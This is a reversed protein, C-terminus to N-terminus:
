SWFSASSFFECGVVDDIMAASMIITGARTHGLNGENEGGNVGSLISFTTGLSTASLAAGLVFAEVVKYKFAGSLLLISLGIPAGIGTLACALSIALNQRLLDIRTTLGGELVIIILGLYGLALFTEQWEQPLINALPTGYIVGLILPGLLSAHLLKQLLASSLPLFVLFSVLTLLHSTSPEHYALFQGGMDDQKVIPYFRQLHYTQFTHALCM